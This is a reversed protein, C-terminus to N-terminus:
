RQHGHDPLLESPINTLLSSWQRQSLSEKPYKQHIGHAPLDRQSSSLPLSFLKNQNITLM